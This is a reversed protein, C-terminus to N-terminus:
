LDAIALLHAIASEVSFNEAVVDGGAVAAPTLAFMRDADLPGLRTRLRRFLPRGEEDALDFRRRRSLVVAELGIEPLGDRVEQAHDLGNVTRFVPDITLAAGHSPSWCYLDGFATRLWPHHPGDAVVPELDPSLIRCQPLLAEVPETWADPDPFWVLGDAFGAFGVQQWWTLVREPLKGRWADIKESLVPTAPIVPGLETLMEDLLEDM